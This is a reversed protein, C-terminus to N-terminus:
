DNWVHLIWKRQTYKGPDDAPNKRLTLHSLIPFNSWCTCTVGQQVSHASPRLAEDDVCQRILPTGCITNSTRSATGDSEGARGEDDVLWSLSIYCSPWSFISRGKKLLKSLLSFIIVLELLLQLLSVMGTASYRKYTQLSAWLYWTPRYTFIVFEFTIFSKAVKRVSCLM